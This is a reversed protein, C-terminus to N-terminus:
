LYNKKYQLKKKLQMHIKNKNVEFYVALYKFYKYYGNRNSNDCSITYSLFLRKRFETSGGGGGRFLIKMGQLDHM